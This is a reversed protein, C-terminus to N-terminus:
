QCNEKAACDRLLGGIAAQQEEDLPSYLDLLARIAAVPSGGFFVDTIRHLGDEVMDTKDLRVRFTICEQVRRETVLDKEALRKLMTRVASVSPARELNARVESVTSDPNMCVIDFVERERPALSDRM